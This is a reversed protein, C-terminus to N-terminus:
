WLKVKSCPQRAPSWLHTPSTAQARLNHSGATQARYNPPALRSPEKTQHLQQNPGCDPLAAWLPQPVAESIQICQSSLAGAEKQKEQNNGPPRAMGIEGTHSILHPMLPDRSCHGSISPFNLMWWSREKSWQLFWPDVPDKKARHQAPNPLIAESM